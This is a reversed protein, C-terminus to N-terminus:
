FFFDIINNKNVQFSPCSVETIVDEVRQLKQKYSVHRGMRLM